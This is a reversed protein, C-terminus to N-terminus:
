IFLLYKSLHINSRFSNVIFLPITLDIGFGEEFGKSGVVWGQCRLGSHVSSADWHAGFVM